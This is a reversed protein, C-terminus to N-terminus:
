RIVRVDVGSDSQTWRSEATVAPLGLRHAMALCLRDALSLPNSRNWLQAAREGDARTVDIVRLGLARLLLSVEDSDGGHQRVKQLVESWNAATVFGGDMLHKVEAGGPERQLWALVASADLLVSL